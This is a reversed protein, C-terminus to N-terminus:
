DNRRICNYTFAQIKALPKPTDNDEHVFATLPDNETSSWHTVWNTILLSGDVKKAIYLEGLENIAPLYWDQRLGQALDACAKAAAFRSSTLFPMNNAGNDVDTAGILAPFGTTEWKSTDYGTLKDVILSNTFLVGGGCTSGVACYGCCTKNVNECSCDTSACLINPMAVCLGPDYNVTKNSLCYTLSYSRGDAGQVYRYDQNPCNAETQPLPNHPVVDMYVVHGNKSVLSGGPIFESDTPFKGGNDSAYRDLAFQIQRVDSLRQTDRAKSRYGSLALVSITSLVGLIVIVILIEILTFANRRNKM